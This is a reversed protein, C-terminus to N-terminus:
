ATATQKQPQPMETPRRSAFIYGRRADVDLIEVDYIEVMGNETSCYEWVEELNPNNPSVVYVELRGVFYGFDGELLRVQEWLYNRAAKEDDWIWPAAVFLRWLGPSDSDLILAFLSFDGKEASLQAELKSLGKMLRRLAGIRM